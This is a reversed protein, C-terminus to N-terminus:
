RHTASREGMRRETPHVNSQWSYQIAFTKAEKKLFFHKTVAHKVVTALGKKVPIRAPRVPRAPFNRLNEDLRGPAGIRARRCQLLNRSRRSPRQGPPRSEPRRPTNPRLTSQVPRSTSGSFRAPEVHTCRNGARPTTQLTRTIAISRRINPRPANAADVKTAALASAQLPVM